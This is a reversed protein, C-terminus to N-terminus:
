RGWQVEILDTLKTVLISAPVRKSSPLAGLRERERQAAVPMRPTEHKRREIAAGGIEALNLFWKHKQQVIDIGLDEIRFVAGALVMLEDQYLQTTNFETIDPDYGRRALEEPSISFKLREEWRVHAAASM